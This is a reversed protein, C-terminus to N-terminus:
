YDWKGNVLRVKRALLGNPFERRWAKMRSMIWKEMDPAITCLARLPSKPLEDAEKDTHVAVWDVFRVLLKTWNLVQQTDASNSHLRFEVTTDEAIKRRYISLRKGAKIPLKPDLKNWRVLAALSVSNNKAIQEITEDQQTVYHSQTLSRPGRGALWPLINLARRRSYRHEDARRGPRQRQSTRGFHPTQLGNKGGNAANFAVAMVADKRDKRTLAVAYDKGIPLCYRNSIRNQGGIIFLIPEIKSYIKLLRFMDSWRLDKADAHVHISCKEDIKINSRNILTGLQTICNVLHDGAIPPTVLEFGCSADDVKKGFWHKNWYAIYGDGSGLRNYEWEVGALRKCDFLKREAKSNAPFTKGYIPHPKPVPCSCHIICHSCPKCEQMENCDPCVKCQCCKTCGKCHRCAKDLHENCSKCFVHRHAKCCGLCMKCGSIVANDDIGNALDSKVFTPFICFPCSFHEGAVMADCEEDYKYTIDASVTHKGIYEILAAKEEATGYPDTDFTKLAALANDKNSLAPFYRGTLHTHQECLLLYSM